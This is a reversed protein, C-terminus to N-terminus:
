CLKYVFLFSVIEANFVERIVLCSSLDSVVIGLNVLSLASLTADSTALM